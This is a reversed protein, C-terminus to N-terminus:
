RKKKKKEKPLLGMIEMVEEPKRGKVGEQLNFLYDIQKRQRKDKLDTPLRRMLQPNAAFGAMVLARNLGEESRLANKVLGLKVRDSEPAVNNALQHLSEILDHNVPNGAFYKVIANALPKISDRRGLTELRKALTELEGMHRVSQPKAAPSSMMREISKHNLKEAMTEALLEDVGFPIKRTSAYNFLFGIVKQDSVKKLRKLFTLAPDLGIGSATKELQWLDHLVEIPVFDPLRHELHKKWTYFGLSYKPEHLERRIYDPRRSKERRQSPTRRRKSKPRTEVRKKRRKM